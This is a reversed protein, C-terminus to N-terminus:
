VLDVTTRRIQYKRQYISKKQNLCKKPPTSCKEQAALKNNVTANNRKNETEDKYHKFCFQVGIPLTVNFKENVLFITNLPVPRCAPSKIGIVFKHHPHLCRRLPKWGIGSDFQHFACLEDNEHLKLGLRNEILEVESM